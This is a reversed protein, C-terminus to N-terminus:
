MACLIAFACLPVSLTLEGFVFGTESESHGYAPGIDAGLLSNFDETRASPRPLSEIGFDPESFARLLDATFTENHAFNFLRGPEEPNLMSSEPPNWM